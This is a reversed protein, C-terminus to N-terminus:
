RKYEYTVSWISEEQWAVGQDTVMNSLLTRKLLPSQLRKGIAYVLFTFWPKVSTSSIHTTAMVPM